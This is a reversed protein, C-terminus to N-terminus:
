IQSDAQQLVERSASRQHAPLVSHQLHMPAIVRTPNAENWKQIAALPEATDDGKMAAKAFQDLLDARRQHLRRDLAMIAGRGEQANAV